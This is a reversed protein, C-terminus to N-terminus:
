SLRSLYVRRRFAGSGPGHGDLVGTTTRAGELRGDRPADDAAVPPFEVGRHREVHRRDLGCGGVDVQGAVIEDLGTGISEVRLLADGEANAFMEIDEAEDGDYENPPVPYPGNGDDNRFWSITLPKASDAEIQSGTEGGTDNGAENGVNNAVANTEAVSGAVVSFVM